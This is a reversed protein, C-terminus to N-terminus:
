GDFGPLHCQAVVKERQPKSLTKVNFPVVYYTHVPVGASNSDSAQYRFNKVLSVAVKGLDGKPVVKAARVNRPVGDAGITYTVAVCGPKDINQGFNPVMADWSSGTLEWYNAVKDPAVTTTQALAPASLGVALALASLAGFSFRKM